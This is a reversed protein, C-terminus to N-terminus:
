VSVWDEGSAEGKDVIIASEDEDESDVEVAEGESESEPQEEEVQEEFWRAPRGHIMEYANRLVEIERETYLALAGQIREPPPPVEPDTDYKHLDKIVDSFDPKGRESETLSMPSTPRSEPDYDLDEPETDEEDSYYRLLYGDADCRSSNAMEIDDSHTAVPSSPAPSQNEVEVIPEPAPQAVPM